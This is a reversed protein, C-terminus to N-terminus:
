QIDKNLLFSKKESFYKSPIIVEGEKTELKVSTSNLQIIIGEIEDIKIKDGLKFNQQIYYSALINGVSQKAGLGFALTAGFLLAALIIDIIHILFNIEIDLQDISIIISVILLGYQAIKGIVKGYTIEARGAASSILNGILRGGIIGFFVIIVAVIINPLFYAIGNLWSTIIPLGVIESILVFTFIMIIWFIINSIYTASNEFSIQYLKKKINEDKFLRPLNNILKKTLYRLLKGILFGIGLVVLSFVLLPALEIASDILEALFNNLELYFSDFDM